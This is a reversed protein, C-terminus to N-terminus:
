QWYHTRPLCWHNAWWLSPLKSSYHFFYKMALWLSFFGTWCNDLYITYTYKENCKKLAWILNSIITVIELYTTISIQYQLLLSIQFPLVRGVIAYCFWNTLNYSKRNKNYNQSFNNLFNDNKTTNSLADGWQQFIVSCLM